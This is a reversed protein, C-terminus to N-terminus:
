IIFYEFGISASYLMYQLPFDCCANNNQMFFQLNIFNGCACKLGMFADSNMKEFKARVNFYNRAIDLNLHLKTRKEYKDLMHISLYVIPIPETNIDLLHIVSSSIVSNIYTVCTIYIFQMLDTYSATKGYTEFPLNSPSFTMQYYKNSLLKVSDYHTYDCESIPVTVYVCKFGRKRYKIASADLIDITSINAINFMYHVSQTLINNWRGDMYIFEDNLIDYGTCVIDSHYTLFVQAWSEIYLSNLQIKYMHGNKVQIYFTITVPTRSVVLSNIDFVKYIIDELLKIKDNTLRKIYIDVDNPIYDMNKYVCRLGISGGILMDIGNEKVVNCFQEICPNINYLINLSETHSNINDNPLLSSVNKILSDSEPKVNFQEDYVNDFLKQIQYLSHRIDDEDVEIHEEEIANRDINLDKIYYKEPIDSKKANNKVSNANNMQIRLLQENQEYIGGYTVNNKAPINMNKDCRNKVIDPITDQNVMYPTEDGKFIVPKRLSCVNNISEINACNCKKFNSCYSVDIYKLKGLVSMIDQTVLFCGSINLYVISKLQNLGKNTIKNCGRLNLAVANKLHKLGDDTILRCMRLDINKANEFVCLQGDDIKNTAIIPFNVMIVKRIIEDSYKSVLRFNIIDKTTFIKPNFIASLLENPLTDM